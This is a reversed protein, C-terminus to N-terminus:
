DDFFRAILKAAEPANSAYGDAGIKHAHEQTVPAGGVVIKVRNRLGASEVARIAQGLSPMTTTLLVSLCLVSCDPHQRLYRVFADAPVDIGLDEVEIGQAQMMVRVLNKGIDHMDGAVTGIVAKGITKQETGLLLPQLVEIGVTMARSALLMEPVFVEGRSFKDGVLNMATIMGEDIIRQPSIGKSLATQVLVNM